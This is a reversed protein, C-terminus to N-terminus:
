SQLRPSGLPWERNVDMKLKHHDNAGAGFHSASSDLLKQKGSVYKIVLPMNHTLLKIIIAIYREQWEPPLLCDWLCLYVCSSSLELFCDTKDLSM